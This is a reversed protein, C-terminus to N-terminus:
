HLSVGNADGIYTSSSLNGANSIWFHGGVGPPRLAIGWPNVLHRDIIAGEDFGKRNAILIKKTYVNPPGALTHPTLGFATATIVVVACAACVSLALMLRRRAYLM